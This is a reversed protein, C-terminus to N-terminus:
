VVKRCETQVHESSLHRLEIVHEKLLSTQILLSLPASQYAWSLAWSPCYSYLDNSAYEDSLINYSLVTFNRATSVRGDLEFNRLLFHQINTHHFRPAPAPIVYSTLMTSPQGVRLKNEADVVFEFKLVHGIDYTTHSYTKLHGVDFWTEGDNRQTVVAHYSHIYGNTLNVTSMSCSLRGFLEDVVILPLPQITFTKSSGTQNNTSCTVKENNTVDENLVVDFTFELKEVYTTLDVVNAQANTTVEKSCSVFLLINISQEINNRARSRRLINYMEPRAKM